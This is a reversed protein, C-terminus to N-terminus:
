LPSFSLQMLASADDLIYDAQMSEFYSRANKGSIGTLVAAFDAHIAKAAIIDAGADGVILTRSIKETDYDGSIIAGDSYKMGFIGKLFIYPHPKSLSISNMNLNNEASIIENHTICCDPDFYRDFGWSKIPIEFEMRPRGTGTGLCIGKQVLSSLIHETREHGLLPEEGEMLGPKPRALKYGYAKEFYAEGYYWGNFATQLTKWVTGFRSCDMGPLVASLKESVHLYLHPACLGLDSYYHYIRIFDKKEDLFLMAAFLVYALDWNTNVGLNKMLVITKDQYFLTDRISKVNLFVKGIDLIEAGFYDKSATLEYVSLAAANWYNQESTIVGDMDFLIKDYKLM